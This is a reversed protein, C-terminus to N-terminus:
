KERRKVQNRVSRQEGEIKEMKGKEMDEKGRIEKQWKRRRDVRGVRRKRKGTEEQGGSRGM